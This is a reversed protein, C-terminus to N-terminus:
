NKETMKRRRNRDTCIKLKFGIICARANTRTKCVVNVHVDKHGGPIHNVVELSGTRTLSKLGTTAEAMRNVREKMVTHETDPSISSLAEHIQVIDPSRSLFEM